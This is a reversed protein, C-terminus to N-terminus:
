DSGQKRNLYMAMAIPAIIVNRTWDEETNVEVRVGKTPVFIKV